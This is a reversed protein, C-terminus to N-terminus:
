VVYSVDIIRTGAMEDRNGQLEDGEKSMSEWLDGCEHQMIMNLTIIEHVLRGEVGAV